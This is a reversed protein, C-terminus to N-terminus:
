TKDLILTQASAKVKKKWLRSRRSIENTLANKEKQKRMAKRTLGRQGIARRRKKQQHVLYCCLLPCTYSTIVCCPLPVVVGAARRNLQLPVLQKSKLSSSGTSSKNFTLSFSSSMGSPLSTSNKNFSLGASYSMGSSTAAQDLRLKKQPGEQKDDAETPDNGPHLKRKNVATQPLNTSNSEQKNPPARSNNSLRVQLPALIATAIAKAMLSSSSELEARKDELKRAFLTRFKEIDRTPL